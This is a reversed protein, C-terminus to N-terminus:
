DCFCNIPNKKSTSDCPKTKPSDLHNCDLDSIQYGISLICSRKGHRSAMGHQSALETNRHWNWSTIGNGHRSVLETVHHWNRSTIGIGHRSTSETVHHRYRSTLRLSVGTAHHRNWLTIGIGYYNGHRSALDTVFHWIRSLTSIGHCSAIETVLHWNWSSAMETVHHWKRSSIGNGHRSAM